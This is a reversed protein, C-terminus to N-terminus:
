QRSFPNCAVSEFPSPATRRRKPEPPLMDISEKAISLLDLKYSDSKLQNIISPIPCKNKISQLLLDINDSEMSVVTTIYMSTAVIVDSKDHLYLTDIYLKILAEKSLANKNKIIINLSQAGPSIISECHKYKSISVLLTNYIYTLVSDDIDYIFEIFDIAMHRIAVKISM